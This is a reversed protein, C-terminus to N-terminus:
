GAASADMGHSRSIPTSFSRCARIFIAVVKACWVPQLSPNTVDAIPTNLPIYANIESTGRDTWPPVYEYRLGVDVTFNPRVKWTDTIYYAQSTARLQVNALGAAENIQYIDGIM